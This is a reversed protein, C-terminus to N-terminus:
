ALLLCADWGSAPTTDSSSTTLALAVGANGELFGNDRAMDPVAYQALRDALEPLCASLAPVTADQGTRWATQYLGALGHCLGIDTIKAQQAPDHLCLLLAEEYARQLRPDHVALAALQGARAIGPTGYCWSPRNPALQSPRRRRLDALTIWEPWWPGTDSDQRWEDLWATITHIADAQGDVTVGRRMAHSLLALPGTIGHAIGFNGHGARFEASQRRHPDHGVWWGPVTDSDPGPIPRTLAVLHSLLREMANGAPDRRLLLAGLGALGFFVDYEHFGPLEGRRMRATALDVRHHALATVHHDVDALGNQYRGETGAASDLMFAIAAAGLYLGTTDAASIQGAVAHAIWAHASRWSARGSRAREIHLLAIGVAGKNLAQPLWPQDPPPPEPRSVLAVYQDAADALDLLPPATSIV